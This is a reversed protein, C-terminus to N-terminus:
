KIIITNTVATIPPQVFLYPPQLIPASLNTDVHSHWYRIGSLDFGPAGRLQLATMDHLIPLMALSATSRCLWIMLWQRWSTPTSLPPACSNDDHRISKTRNCWFWAAGLSLVTSAIGFLLIRSFGSLLMLAGQSELVSFACESVSQGHDICLMRTRVVDVPLLITNAVLDGVGLAVLCSAIALFRNDDTCPTSSRDRYHAAAEVHRHLTTFVMGSTVGCAVARWCAAAGLPQGIGGVQVLLCHGICGLSVTALCALMICLLLLLIPLV